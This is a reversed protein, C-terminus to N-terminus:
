HPQPASASASGMQPLLGQIATPEIMLSTVNVKGVFVSVWRTSTKNWVLLALLEHPADSGYCLEKQLASASTAPETDIQEILDGPKLGLSEAQTGPKVADILVGNRDGLSYRERDALTVEKLQAGVGEAAARAVSEPSALVESRLMSLKPWRQGRVLIDSSKGKRWVTLVAPTGAERTVLSRLIARSDLYMLSDVKTIIDGPRLGAKAAPSDPDTGTVLAGDIDPRDFVEALSQTLDQLQLGVWNPDDTKPDLLHKVVMSATNSPLAFGLGISGLMKNNSYLATDIGIADGNCDILPGGSNGPNIAADTQLFNDFPTRMLDRDIASIVGSSVSIGVGLPNGIAFVPQGIALVHSDGFRLTSLTVPHDAGPPKPPDVKLLALDVLASAVILKAGVQTHDDFTVRIIAANQIVHQNTAIIGNPDIIFGTGVEVDLQDYPGGGAAEGNIVKVVWINVVAHLARAVADTANCGAPAAAHASSAIGLTGLLTIIATSCILRKAIARLAIAPM